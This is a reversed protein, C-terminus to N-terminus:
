INMNRSLKLLQNLNFSMVVAVMLHWQWTLVNTQVVEEKVRGISFSYNCATISLFVLLCFFFYVM